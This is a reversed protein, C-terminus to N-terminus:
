PPGSRVAYLRWLGARTRAELRDRQALRAHVGPPAGVVLHDFHALDGDRLREPFWELGGTWPADRPPDYVVLSPPFDAFSFNLTGGAVVQSWAFTQLFPRNDLWRSERLLDLGLVRPADPLAGLAQPLGSLEVREVRQWVVAVVLCYGAVVLAAGGRRLGAPVRLPPAALLLVALGPSLWRTNFEITNTFKDPLLLACGVFLAALLALRLDTSERLRRRSGWAALLLWALLVAFALTEAGGKLLGFAAEVWWGPDLRQAPAIWLPPTSFSTASLRLFWLAAVAVVPAVAVARPWLARWQRRRRLGDLGLWLLGAAWWLAHALYLLVALAFLALAERGRRGPPAPDREVRLFWAVFVPWGVLFSAFGWGLAHHFVLVSAVMAAAASRGRRQALGHIAAVWALAVLLMALRAGLVPGATVSGAGALGALLRGAGFLVYVLSYPTAWQVRYLSAEEGPVEGGRGLAEGLLRVQAAHQPLDALPPFDVVLFPLAVAAAALAALLWRTRPRAGPSM